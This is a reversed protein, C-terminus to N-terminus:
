YYKIKSTIKEIKKENPNGLLKKIANVHGKQFAKPSEEVIVWDISPDPKGYSLLPKYELSDNITRYSAGHSAIKVAKGESSTM